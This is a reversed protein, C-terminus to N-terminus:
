SRSPLPHPPPSGFLGAPLAVWRFGLYLSCDLLLLLGALLLVAWDLLLCNWDVVVEVKLGAKASLLLLVARHSGLLELLVEVVVEMEANSRDM